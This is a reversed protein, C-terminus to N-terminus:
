RLHSKRHQMYKGNDGKRLDEFCKINCQAEQAIYKKFIILANDVTNQVDKKESVSLEESLSKLKISSDSNDRDCGNVEQPSKAESLTATSFDCLSNSDATYSDCDTSVSLSDHDMHNNPVPSFNSHKKKIDNYLSLDSKFTEIDLWCLIYPSADRSEMYQIFYGLASKDSIIEQLTKSLRSRERSSEFERNM